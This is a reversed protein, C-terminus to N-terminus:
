GADAHRRGGRDHHDDNDHQLQLRHRRGHSQRLGVGGHRQAANGFIVTTLAGNPDLDADWNGAVSWETKQSVTGSGGIWNYGAIVISGNVGTLTLFGGNLNSQSTFPISATGNPASQLMDFPMTFIQPTGDNLLTGSFNSISVNLTGASPSFADFAFGLSTLYSSLTM